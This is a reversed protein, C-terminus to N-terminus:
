IRVHCPVWNSRSRVNLQTESLDGNPAGTEPESANYFLRILDILIQLNISLPLYHKGGMLFSVPALNWILVL